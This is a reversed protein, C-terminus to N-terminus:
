EAVEPGWAWGADVFRGDRVVALRVPAVRNGMGDLTIPGTVGPFDRMGALADRIRGQNIGAKRIAYIIMRMGDYAYAAYFDPPEGYREMFKRNFKRTLPDPRSPDYPYVVTVGEAYRGAAEVFTPVALASSGFVEKRFGAERLARVFRGSEEPTGWVVIAEPEEKMVLGVQESFDEQRLKFGVKMALPHGMRRSAREFEGMGIRGYNEDDDDLFVGGVKTYGKIRFIYEALASAQDEDTPMCRFIWPDNVQTLSPDTATPTVVPVWAKTCIQEAIHSNPGDVSGLVAWVEDEYILGVMQRPAIGWPGDVQRHVLVFPRGEYGGEENAEELALKAGRFLSLGARATQPTSIGPKPKLSPGFLGIRVELVSTDGRAKRPGTFRVTDPLSRYPSPPGAIGWLFISLGLSLAKM